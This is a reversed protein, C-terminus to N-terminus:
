QGLYLWKHNPSSNIWDSKIEGIFVSFEKAESSVDIRFVAQIQIRQNKFSKIGM